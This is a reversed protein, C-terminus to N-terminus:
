LVTLVAIPRRALEKEKASLFPLPCGCYVVGPWDTARTEM